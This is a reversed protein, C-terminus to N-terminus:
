ESDHTKFSLQGALCNETNNHFVVFILIKINEYM